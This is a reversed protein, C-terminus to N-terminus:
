VLFGMFASSMAGTGVATTKGIGMPKMDLRCMPGEPQSNQPMTFKIPEM